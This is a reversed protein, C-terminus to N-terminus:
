PSRLDIRLSERGLLDDAVGGVVEDDEPRYRNLDPFLYPNAADGAAVPNSTKWYRRALLGHGEVHRGVDLWVLLELLAAASRRHWIVGGVDGEGILLQDM